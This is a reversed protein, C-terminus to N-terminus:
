EALRRFLGAYKRNIREASRRFKRQRAKGRLPTM